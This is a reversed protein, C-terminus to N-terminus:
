HEGGARSQLHSCRAGEEAILIEKPNCTVNSYLAYEGGGVWLQSLPTGSDGRSTNERPV